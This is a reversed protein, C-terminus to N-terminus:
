ISNLIASLERDARAAERFREWTPVDDFDLADVNGFGSVVALGRRNSWEPDGLYKRLYDLTAPAKQFPEWKGCPIKSGYVAPQGTRKDLRRVWENGLKM